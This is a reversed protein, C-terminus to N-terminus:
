WPAMPLGSVFTQDNKINQAAVGRATNNAKWGSYANSGVGAAMGLLGGYFNARDASSQAKIQAMGSDHGSQMERLRSASRLGMQQLTRGSSATALRDAILQRNVGDSTNMFVRNLGKARRLNMSLEDDVSLQNDGVGASRAAQMKAETSAINNAAQIRHTPDQSLFNIREDRADRIMQGSRWLGETAVRIGREATAKTVSVAM